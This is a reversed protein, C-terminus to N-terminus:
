VSAIISNYSHVYKRGICNRPGIGFSQMAHLVDRGEGPKAEPDSKALWREPSFTYPDVWNLTTHNM